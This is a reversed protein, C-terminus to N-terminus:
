LRFNRVLDRSSFFLFLVLCDLDTGWHNGQLTLPTGEGPGLVGM